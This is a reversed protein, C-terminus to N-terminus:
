LGRSATATTDIPSWVAEAIADGLIFQAWDNILGVRKASCIEAGTHRKRKTALPM